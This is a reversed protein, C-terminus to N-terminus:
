KSEQKKVGLLKVKFVLVSQPPIVPPRGNEGFALEAPITLKAEGGVKMLTLGEAWGKIVAGMPLSVPKGRAFSSDFITGDVLAGEYHM